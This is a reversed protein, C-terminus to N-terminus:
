ANTRAPQYRSTLGPEFTRRRDAAKRKQWWTWLLALMLCDGLLLSIRSVVSQPLYWIAFCLVLTLVATIALWYKARQRKEDKSERLAPWFLALFGGIMLSCWAGDVIKRPLFFIWFCWALAVVAVLTPAWYNVPRQTELQATNDHRM